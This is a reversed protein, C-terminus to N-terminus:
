VDEIDDRYKDPMYGECNIVAMFSSGSKYLKIKQMVGFVSVDVLTIPNGCEKNICSECLPFQVGGPGVALKSMSNLKVRYRNM